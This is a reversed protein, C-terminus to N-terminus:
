WQPEQHCWKDSFDEATPDQKKVTIDVTAATLGPSSVTVTITGTANGSGIVGLALGHYAPRVGLKNNVLCSPDGNGSGEVWATPTGDVAFTVVNNDTNDPDPCLNGDGDLV